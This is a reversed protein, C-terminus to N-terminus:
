VHYLFSSLHLFYICCCYSPLSTLLSEVRLALAVVRLVMVTLSFHVSQYNITIAIQMSCFNRLYRVKIVSLYQTM